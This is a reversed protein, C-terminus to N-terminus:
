VEEVLTLQRTRGPPDLEVSTILGREVLIHAFEALEEADHLDIDALLLEGALLGRYHKANHSVVKRVGDKVRVASITVHDASSPPNWVKYTGSRADIILEDNGMELDAMATRWLRATNGLSPLVTGMSLRYAPIQDSPQLIGFLGSFIRVHKDARALIADNASGLDMAAFLVGTYIERAPATPQAYLDIQAAVADAVSPGVKLIKLADPRASVEALEDILAMRVDTFAPFSLTGLDLLAGSCPATKGESPPLLILM